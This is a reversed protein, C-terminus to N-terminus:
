FDLRYTIVTFAIGLYYYAGDPSPIGNFSDDKIKKDAADKNKRSLFVAVSAAALASWLPLAKSHKESYHISKFILDMKKYHIFSCFNTM